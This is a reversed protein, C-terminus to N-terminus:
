SIEILDVWHALDYVRVFNEGELNQWRALKNKEFIFLSYILKIPSSDLKDNDAIADEEWIQWFLKLSGWM